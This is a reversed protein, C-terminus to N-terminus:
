NLPCRYDDDDVLGLYKGKAEKIGYIEQNLPAEVIKLKTIDYKDLTQCLQLNEDSPVM